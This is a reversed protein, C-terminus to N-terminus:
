ASNATSPNQCLWLQHLAHPLNGVESVAARNMRCFQEGDNYKIIKSRTRLRARASSSVFRARTLPNRARCASRSQSGLRKPVVTKGRKLVPLAASKTVISRACYSVLTTGPSNKSCGCCKRMPNQPSVSVTRPPSSRTLLARSAKTLHSALLCCDNNPQNTNLPRPITFFLQRIGFLQIPGIKVTTSLSLNFKTALQYPYTQLRTVPPALRIASLSGGMRGCAMDAAFESSNACFLVGSKRRQSRQPDCRFYRHCRLRPLLLGRFIMNRPLSCGYEGSEAWDSGTWRGEYGGKDWVLEKYSGDEIVEEYTWQNASQTPSFGGLAEYTQPQGPVKQAVVSPSRIDRRDRQSRSSLSRLFINGKAAKGILKGDGAFKTIPFGITTTAPLGRFNSEKSELIQVWKKSRMPPLAPLFM